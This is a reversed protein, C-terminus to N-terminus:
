VQMLICQLLLLRYWFSRHWMEQKTVLYGVFASALVMLITGIVTRSLSVLFSTGLDGVERLALYNDINFGRPYFNVLGKRVM